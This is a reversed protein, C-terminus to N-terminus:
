SLETQVRKPFKEWSDPSYIHYAKLRNVFLLLLKSRMWFSIKWRLKDQFLPFNRYFNEHARKLLTQFVHASESKFPARFCCSTRMWTLLNKATLLKWFIEAMLSMRKKLIHLIKHLNWFHLLFGMFQKPKLSFQTQVLQLFKEWSDATYMHDGMLTKVFLWLMKSRIWLSIKGTWKEQFLPFNPILTRGDVSCYHKPVMFVNLRLPHDSVAALESELLWMNRLWYSWFYKVWWASGKKWFTCLKM